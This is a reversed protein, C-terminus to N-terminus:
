VDPHLPLFADVGLWVSGCSSRTAISLINSLSAFAGDPVVQRRQSFLHAQGFPLRCAWFPVTVPDYLDEPTRCGSWVSDPTFCRGLTVCFPCVSRPFGGLARRFLKMAIWRLLRGPRIGRRPPHSLFGLGLQLPQSISVHAQYSPLYLYQLLKPRIALTARLTLLLRCISSQFASGHFFISRFTKRSWCPM